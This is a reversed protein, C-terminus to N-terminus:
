KLIQRLAELVLRMQARIQNEASAIDGKTGQRIRGQSALICRCFFEKIVQQHHAAFVAHRQRLPAQKHHRAVMINVTAADVFVCLLHQILFRLIGRLMHRRDVFAEIVPLQLKLIIDLAQGIIALEDFRIQRMLM